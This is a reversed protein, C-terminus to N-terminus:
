VSPEKINVREELAYVRPATAATALFLCEAQVLGTSEVM